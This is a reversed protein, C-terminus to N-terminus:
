NEGWNEGWNYTGIIKNIKYLAEYCEQKSCNKIPKYKVKETPKIPNIKIITLEQLIDQIQEIYSTIPTRNVDDIILTTRKM